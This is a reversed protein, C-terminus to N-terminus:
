LVSLSPNPFPPPRSYLTLVLRSSAVSGLVLSAPINFVRLAPDAHAYMTATVVHTTTIAIFYIAGDLLLRSLIPVKTGIRRTVSLNRLVVAALVGTDFFAPLINVATVLSTNSGPRAQTACGQFNIYTRIPRSRLNVDGCNLREDADVAMRHPQMQDLSESRINGASTTGSHDRYVGPGM